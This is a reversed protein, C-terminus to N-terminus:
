NISILGEENLAKGSLIDLTKGYIEKSWQMANEELLDAAEGFNGEELERKMEGLFVEVVWIDHNFSPRGEAWLSKTKLTKGTMYNIAATVGEEPTRHNGTLVQVGWGKERAMRIRTGPDYSIDNGLLSKLVDKRVKDYGCGADRTKCADMDLDGHEDDIHVGPVLNHEKAVESQYIRDAMAMLVEDDIEGGCRQVAVMLLDMIHESGGPMQVGRNEGEKDKREDVCRTSDPENDVYDERTVVQEQAVTEAAISTDMPQDMSGEM